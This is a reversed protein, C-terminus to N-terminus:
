KWIDLAANGNISGRVSFRGTDVVGHAALNIELV